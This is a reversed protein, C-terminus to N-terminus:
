FLVFIHVVCHAYISTQQTREQKKFWFISNFQVSHQPLFFCVCLCKHYMNQLSIHRNLSPPPVEVPLM